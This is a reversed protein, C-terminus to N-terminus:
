RGLIRIMTDRCGDCIERVTERSYGSSPDARYAKAPYGTSGFTVIVLRADTSILLGKCEYNGDKIMWGDAVKTSITKPRTRLWRREEVVHGTFVPVTPASRNQMFEVFESMYRHAEPVRNVRAAHEAEDLRNRQAVVADAM